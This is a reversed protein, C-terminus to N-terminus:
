TIGDSLKHIQRRDHNLDGTLAIDNFHKVSGTQSSLVSASLTKGSVTWKVVFPIGFNKWTQPNLSSTQNAAQLIQEKEATRSSVQSAGNYNLDYQLVGELQSLYSPDFLTNQSQLKGLYILSLQSQTSLHVRIEGGEKQEQACALLPLAIIM